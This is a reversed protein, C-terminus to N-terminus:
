KVEIKGSQIVKGFMPESVLPCKKNDKILKCEPFCRKGKKTIEIKSDGLELVDGVMILESDLDILLTEIFRKVCLGDGYSNLKDITTKSMICVERDGPKSYADGELGCGVYLFGSDINM